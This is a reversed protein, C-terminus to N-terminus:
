SAPTALYDRIYDNTEYVKASGTDDGLGVGEIPAGFAFISGDESISVSFGLVDDEYKGTVDAGVQVWDGGEYHYVRVIGVDEIGGIEAETGSTAIYMGDGSIATFTGQYNKPYKGDIDSGVQVWAAGNWDYVRVHGNRNFDGDNKDAGIAVRTGDSSLGVSRGSNDGNAEGNIDVGRQTWTGAIDEYVRVRGKILGGGANNPEGIAVITGDVNVDISYGLNDSPNEGDIDVGIQTWTGSMDKYVKVQGANTNHKHSAIAVRTGDKSLRIVESFDDNDADGDIDAGVQVWATGNYDYIRARGRSTGGGDDNRAGIALRMGDASLSVGGRGGGFNGNSGGPPTITAGVQVWTSTITSYDFVRVYGDGGNANASGVAIRTGDASLSIAEGCSDGQVLGGITQGIQERIHKGEDLKVLTAMLQRLLTDNVAPANDADSVYSINGANVLTNGQLDLTGNIQGTGDNKGEFIKTTRTLDRQIVNLFSANSNLAVNQTGPM